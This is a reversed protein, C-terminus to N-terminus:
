LSVSSDSSYKSGQSHQRSPSSMVRSKRSCSGKDNILPIREQQLFMLRDFVHSFARWTPVIMRSVVLLPHYFLNMDRRDIHVLFRQSSVCIPNDESWRVQTHSSGVIHISLDSSSLNPILDTCLLNSRYGRRIPEVLVIFNHSCFEALKVASELDQGM